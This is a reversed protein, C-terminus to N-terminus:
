LKARRQGGLGGPQNARRTHRGSSIGCSRSAPCVSHHRASDHHHIITKAAGTNMSPIQSSVTPWRLELWIPWVIVSGTHSRASCRSSVVQCCGTSPKTHENMPARVTTLPVAKWAWRSMMLSRSSAPCVLGAHHIDIKGNRRQPEVPVARVPVTFQLVVLVGRQVAGDEGHGHQRECKEGVFAPM